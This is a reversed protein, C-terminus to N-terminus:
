FKRVCRVYYASTKSYCNQSGGSFYQYWANNNSNETSSWYYNSAFGSCTRFDSRSQAAAGRRLPNRWSRPSSAQGHKRGFTM